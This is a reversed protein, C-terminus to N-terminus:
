RARLEWQSFPDHVLRGVDPSMMDRGKAVDRRRNKARDTPAAAVAAMYSLAISTRTSVTCSSTTRTPVSRISVASRPQNRGDGSSHVGPRHVGDDEAVLEQAGVVWFAEEADGFLVLIAESSSIRFQPSRSGSVALVVPVRINHLTSEFGM